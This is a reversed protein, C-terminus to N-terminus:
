LKRIKINRFWVVSGHDQLLILGMEHLGFGPTDKFKSKAVRESFDSSGRVYDAVKKGNLWHVVHMGYSTIRSTNWEGVPKSKKYVSPPYLEYVAGNTHYDNPQMKGEKMWPHALDDLMQYEIGLADKGDEKVFYKVGSNGGTDMMKWDWVFDFNGYEEMSVLNGGNGSVMCGEKIEWGKEPFGQKNAARWLSPSKGDFLLKWGEKVEKKTLTNATPQGQLQVAYGILFALWLISLLNKM